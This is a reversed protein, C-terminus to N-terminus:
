AGLRGPEFWRTHGVTPKWPTEELKNKKARRFDKVSVELSSVFRLTFFSSTEWKSFGFYGHLNSGTLLFPCNPCIGALDDISKPSKTSSLCHRSYKKASSRQLLFKREHQAKDSAYHCGCKKSPLTQLYDSCQRLTSISYVLCRQLFTALTSIPHITPLHPPTLVAESYFAICCNTLIGSPWRLIILHRSGPSQAPPISMYVHVYIYIYKYLMKKWTNQHVLPLLCFYM